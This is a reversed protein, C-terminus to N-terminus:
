IDLFHFIIKKLKTSDNEGNFQNKGVVITKKLLKSIGKTVKKEKIIKHYNKLKMEILRQIISFFIESFNLM